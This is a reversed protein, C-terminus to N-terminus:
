RILNKIKYQDMRLSTFSSSSSQWVSHINLSWGDVYKCSSVCMWRLGCLKSCVHFILNMQSCPLHLTTCAFCLFSTIGLSVACLHLSFARFGFNSFNRPVLSSRDLVVIGLSVLVVGVVYSGSNRKQGIRAIFAMLQWRVLARSWWLICTPATTHHRRHGFLIITPRANLFGLLKLLLIEKANIAFVAQVLM